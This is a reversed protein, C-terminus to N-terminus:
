RGQSILGGIWGQHERFHNASNAHIMGIIPREDREGEGEPQYDSSARYLDDDSMPEIQSLLEDHVERLEALAEQSSAYKRREQIAANIDDEDGTLYLDQDVGLGEHCPRGCLFAVVSREWAAMHSLHDKVAWGHSDRIQTMQAETLRDLAQNLGTWASDLEGMLDAKTYRTGM